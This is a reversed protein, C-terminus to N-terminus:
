LRARGANLSQDNALRTPDRAAADVGDLRRPMASAMSAVTNERQWAAVYRARRHRRRRLFSAPCRVEKFQQCKAAAEIYKFHVLADQSFNVIQGLYYFLGEYCKFGEFLEM